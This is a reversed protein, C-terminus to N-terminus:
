RSRTVSLFERDFMDERFQFRPDQLVLDARLFSQCLYLRRNPRGGTQHWGQSSGLRRSRRLLGIRGIQSPVVPILFEASPAIGAKAMQVLLRAYTLISTLVALGIIICGL